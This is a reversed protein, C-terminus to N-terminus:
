VGDDRSVHSQILEPDGAKEEADAEGDDAEEHDGCRCHQGTVGVYELVDADGVVFGELATLSGHVRWKGHMKM